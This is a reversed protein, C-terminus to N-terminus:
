KYKRACRKKIVATLHSKTNLQETISSSLNEGTIKLSLNKVCRAYSSFFNQYLIFILILLGFIFSYLKIKSVNVEVDKLKTTKKKVIFSLLFYVIQITKKLKITIKQLDSQNSQHELKSYSM